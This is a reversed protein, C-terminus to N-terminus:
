KISELYHGAAKSLGEELTLPPRWDLLNRAKGVDVQLSGCLRQAFAGKGLLRAALKLWSAPVPILRAPRGLAGGLARLLETTSLDEGDGALFVQNAAAPHNACTIILDVLNDLAVLSRQNHIAGLPMPVGMNLWRMMSLFNAKVGPGYVLPPRVVVVEMGTQESLAFLGREAEFKSVGYPDVPAPAADATFPRGPPTADGNVKITSVFVLRRVGAAAAQRALSLTGQTNVRRFEALPDDAQDDMVHVRAAAHVLVGVGELVASWDTDPGIDDISAVGLADDASLKRRDRVMATVPVRRRLLEAVLAGGVFGTAGTVAIVRNDSASM